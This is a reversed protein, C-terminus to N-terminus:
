PNFIGQYSACRHVLSRSLLVFVVQSPTLLYDKGGDGDVKVNADGEDADGYSFQESLM